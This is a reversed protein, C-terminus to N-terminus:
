AEHEELVAQLKSFGGRYITTLLTNLRLLAQKLLSASLKGTDFAQALEDLDVVQIRSDPYVIVDALLDVTTLRNLSSDYQYDVIDCYWYLLSNDSLYFKSVKIGLKLFYCSAGHTFETKPSLTNWKTVIIDDNCFLIKDDKLPICQDPILRRRYLQPYSLHTM